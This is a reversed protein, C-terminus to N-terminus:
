LQLRCSDEWVISHQDHKAIAANNTTNISSASVSLINEYVNEGVLGSHMSISQMATGNEKNLFEGGQIYLPDYGLASQAFLKLHSRHAHLCLDVELYIFLSKLWPFVWENLRQRIQSQWDDLSKNWEPRQFLSIKFGEALNEQVSNDHKELMMRGLIKPKASQESRVVTHTILISFEPFASEFLWHLTCESRMNQLETYCKKTQPWHRFYNKNIEPYLQGLYHSILLHDFLQFFTQIGSDSVEPREMFKRIHSPIIGTSALLGLNLEIFACNERIKLSEIVRNQSALSNHSSFWIDQTAIGEHKLLRLLAILDFNGIQASIQAALDYELSYEAEKIKLMPRM